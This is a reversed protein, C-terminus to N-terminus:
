RSFWFGDLPVRPNTVIRPIGFVEKGTILFLIFFLGFAVYDYAYMYIYGFWNLFTCRGDQIGFV